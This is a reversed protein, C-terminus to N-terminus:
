PMELPPEPEAPLASEETVTGDDLTNRGGFRFDLKESPVCLYQSPGIRLSDEDDFQNDIDVFDPTEPNESPTLKYCTLHSEGAVPETTVGDVTKAAPNCFYTSSLVRVEEIHFQDRLTAPINLSPSRAEYCMFHSIDSPPPLQEKQTPVAVLRPAALVLEQEGFQNRIRVLRRPEPSKRSIPYFTLHNMPELIPTTVNDVTKAAPNCFWGANHVLVDLRDDFQDEIDATIPQELTLENAVYCKFHDTPAQARVERASFLLATAIAGILVASSVPRRPAAM